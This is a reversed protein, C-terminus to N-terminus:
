ELMNDDTIWSITHLLEQAGGHQTIVTVTGDKGYSFRANGYIVNSVVVPVAVCQTRLPRYGEPISWPMNIAKNAELNFASM